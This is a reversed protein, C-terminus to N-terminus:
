RRRLAVFARYDDESIRVQRGIRHAHLEDAAIKRRVTKVSVDLAEAVEEVCFLQPVRPKNM